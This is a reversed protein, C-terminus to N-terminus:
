RWRTFVRVLRQLLIDLLIAAVGIAISLGLVASVDGQTARLAILRGAGTQSGLLEVTAQVAIATSLAVRLGALVAPLTAPVVLRWFRAAAPIGMTAGYEEVVAPLALAASQAILGVTVFCYFAVLLFKGLPGQGFWILCFPALVLAPVAGFVFLIPESLNRVLQVRASLLGVVAGLVSGVVWALAAMGVTWAVNVGYGSVRVGLYSLGPDRVFSTVFDTAVKLPGPLIATYNVAIAIAQWVLLVVLIGLLRWGLAGARGVGIRPPRPTGVTTTAM